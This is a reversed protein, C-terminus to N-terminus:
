QSAVVSGHIESLEIFYRPSMIGSGALDHPEFIAAINPQLGVDPLCGSAGIATTQGQRMECGANM